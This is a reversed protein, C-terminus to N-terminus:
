LPASKESIQTADQPKVLPDNELLDHNRFTVLARPLMVRLLSEIETHFDRM